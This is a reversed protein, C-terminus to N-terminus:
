CHFLTSYARHSHGGGGVVQGFDFGLNGKGEGFPLQDIHEKGGIVSNDYYVRYAFVGGSTCRSPPYTISM